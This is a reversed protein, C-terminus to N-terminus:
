EIDLAGLAINLKTDAEIVWTGRQLALADVLWLYVTPVFVAMLIEKRPLALLFRASPIRCVYPNSIYLGNFFNLLPFRVMTYADAPLAM